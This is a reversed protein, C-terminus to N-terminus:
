EHTRLLLKKGISRYRVCFENGPSRTCTRRLCAIPWCPLSPASQRSEGFRYGEDGRPSRSDPVAEPFQIRLRREEQLKPWVSAALTFCISKMLQLFLLSTMRFLCKFSSLQKRACCYAGFPSDMRFWLSTRSGLPERRSLVRPFVRGSRNTGTRSLVSTELTTTELGPAIVSAVAVVKKRSYCHFDKGDKLSRLILNTGSHGFALTRSM